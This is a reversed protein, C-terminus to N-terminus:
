FVWALGLPKVRRNSVGPSLYRRGALVARIALKLERSSTDDKLMCGSAGTRMADEFYEDIDQRIIALIKTQPVRQKMKGIMAPGHRHTMNLDMLVVTPNLLCAMSEADEGNDAEGIVDMRSEKALCARFAVRLPPYDGAILITPRANM